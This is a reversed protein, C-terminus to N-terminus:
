KGRKPKPTPKIRPKQLNLNERATRSAIEQATPKPPLGMAERAKAIGEANIQDQTRPKLPKAEGPTKPIKPQKGSSNTPMGQQLVSNKPAVDATNRYVPNVNKSGEGTIGGVSRAPFGIRDKFDFPM